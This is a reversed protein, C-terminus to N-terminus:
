VLHRATRMSGGGRSDSGRIESSASPPNRHRAVGAYLVTPRRPVIHVPFNQLVSPPPKKQHRRDEHIRCGFLTVYPMEDISAVQHEEGVDCRNSFEYVKGSILESLDKGWKVWLLRVKM